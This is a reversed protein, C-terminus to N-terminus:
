EEKDVWFSPRDLSAGWSPDTCDVCWRRTWTPPFPSGPNYEYVRWGMLWLWYWTSQLLDDEAMQVVRRDVHNVESRNAYVHASTTNLSVGIYGIAQLDATQCKINTPLASPQPTFLGGMEDSLQRSLNEYEYEERTIATQYVRTYYRYVFRDEDKHIQYVVLNNIQGDQYSENSGLKSFRGNAHAWGINLYQNVRLIADQEPVYEYFAVLPTHVEWTEEYNWRYYQEKTDTPAPTVMINVYQGDVSMGWSVNQIEPTPLPLQPKSIYTNDNWNIELWYETSPDLQGVPVVYTGQMFGYGGYGIYKDYTSGTYGEYINHGQWIQGDSGHVAIQADWIAFGDYIEDDDLKIPIGHSLYFTCDTNSCISGEVCLIRTDSSPLDAEFEDICSCCLLTAIIINYIYSRM